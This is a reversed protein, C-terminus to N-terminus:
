SVFLASSDWFVHKEFQGKVMCGSNGTPFSPPIALLGRVVGLASLARSRIHFPATKPCEQAHFGRQCNQIKYIYIYIYIYISLSLSICIYIYIYICMVSSPNHKGGASLVFRLTPKFMPRCSPKFMYLISLLVCDFWNGFEACPAKRRLNSIDEDQM